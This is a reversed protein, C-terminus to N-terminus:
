LSGDLAEIVTIATGNVVDEVDCTPHLINIPREFGLTLPGIAEAGGLHRVLKCAINASALNPFILVNARGRLECFPFNRQQIEPNVATDAQMEGDVCLNPDRARILEVAKVVRRTQECPATGFNSFSLMAVKPTIHFYRAVAATMLAIEALEEASPDIQATCDAMFYVNNKTLVIYLGAMRRVGRRLQCTQLLAQMVYPYSRRVGTILGDVKGTELMLGAFWDPRSSYYWADAWTVGRRQRRQYFYKALEERDPHRKPHVIEIGSLDVGFEQAREQIREPDGVLVPLAFEEELVRVAARIVTAHEGDAFIIRKRSGRARHRIQGMFEHARSLSAELKMKYANVDPLPLRAVGSEVAARAVAASEWTLVRRDFPKPIIYEPGFQLRKLGYARLVEDPVDERALDALARCAALKMEENIKRARVDLAGRFIFPFGLVNNVQNPYDSRGTAIIADPRVARAVEPLIEPTPNAMAFIIPNKAMKKIMEGSVIGGQSVGSFVDAGELAEALTRAPTDVAFEAKVPNMGEERGKYIVGKTDVLMLNEPKVGLAIYFKGCAIGAAGAGSMVVRIQDLRKGILQCANLLAAGSIIATGHQDDHFIPIDMSAQLEQEIRFCEPAKIDELNIGGFTPELSRVIEIFRDPDLENIELDFVNIGAFRKFLVGKGEMVPKGALAGINGLGLVATGNSIVAVLNGRSTFDYAKEPDAEIALCPEAVGPTYALSLDRQTACPKTPVTEVKGPFPKSHYEFAQTKLDM